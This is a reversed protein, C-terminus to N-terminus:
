LDPQKIRSEKADNKAHHKLLDMVDTNYEAPTEKVGTIWYYIDWDNSPENILKDYSSLQEESLSNLHQRAFTSLLLGNELMGRKRSQYLLRARKLEVAEGHRLKYPPIPPTLDDPTLIKENGPGDCYFIKRISFPPYRKLIKCSHVLRYMASAIVTTFDNNKEKKLLDHNNFIQIVAFTEFVFLFTNTILTGFTIALVTIM